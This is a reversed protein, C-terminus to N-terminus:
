FRLKAAFQLNRPSQTGGAMGFVASHLNNSGILFNTHNFVNFAEAKFQLHLKDSLAFTKSLSIDASWYSPGIFTNRGLNGVCGM